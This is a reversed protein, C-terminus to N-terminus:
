RQSQNEENTEEETETLSLNSSVINFLHQLTQRAQFSRLDQGPYKECLFAIFDLYGDDTLLFEAMDKLVTLVLVDGHEGKTGIVIM